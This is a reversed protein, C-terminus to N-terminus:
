KFFIQKIFDLIEPRMYYDHYAKKHMRSMLEKTLKGHEFIPEGFAHYDKWSKAFIKGEKKIKEYYPSGPLPIFIQFQAIDLNLKKAFNITDQITKEDEGENGIMFFGETKIKYKKCWKIANSIQDLTEGKNIKKLIEPNGSEIGFALLYCGSEKMKKILSENVADARIGNGTKWILNYSRDILGNCIKKVRDPLVTFNDDLINLEKIKYRKVLHDIEDLVNEASRYRFKKGLVTWNVCFTCNYPCGRSTMITAFPYKKVGPSWYKELPLLDRAPFPLSDLDKIFPRPPNMIIQNNKKYAIGKIKEQPKQKAIELITHEGEGIVCLDIKECEQLTKIPSGSPHPGGVVVQTEKPIMNAISYAEEITNTAATIGIIDSKSKEISKSTQEKNYNLAALDISFDLDSM